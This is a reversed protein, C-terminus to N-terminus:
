VEFHLPRFMRVVGAGLGLLVVAASWRRNAFLHMPILPEKLPVYVEWLVFFILVVGGIAIASIVAASKWPYVSGGWSLGLLFVIFGGSFLFTGFYDFNKIWHMKSDIDSKHKQHFSPPFYFLVWAALAAVNIALLLWYIGRWGVAPYRVVFAWAVAPGMGSGAISFCYIFATTIYRYKM